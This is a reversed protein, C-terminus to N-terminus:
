EFSSGCQLAKWRSCLRCARCFGAYGQRKYVKCDRNIIGRKCQKLLYMRHLCIVVRIGQLVCSRFYLWRESQERVAEDLQRAFRNRYQVRCRCCQLDPTVAAVKVFGQKMREDSRNRIRNKESLVKMTM